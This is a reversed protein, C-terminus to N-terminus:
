SVGKYSCPKYQNNVGDWLWYTGDEAVWINQKVLKQKGDLTTTYFKIKDGTKELKGHGTIGKPQYGNDFTGYEYADPNLAGRYYSTNVEHVSDQYTIGDKTVSPKMSSNTIENENMMNYIGNLADLEAGTDTNSNEKLVNGKGVSASAKADNLNSANKKLLENQISRYIGFKTNNDQPIMLSELDYGFLGEKISSDESIEAVVDDEKDIDLTYDQIAALEDQQKRYLMEEDFQRQQEKLANETNIQDLIDMYRNYYRDDIAMNTSLQDLLLQSEYQFGQLSIQLEQQFGQYAIDALVSSNQLRAEKIANNYNQVALNYSERASAVRNQYTNYIEVQSSESYGTNNLGSAALQEANAGYRNSEKKYDVFAGSQERQYDKAAQEKEQEIQEITFDTQAQQAASQSSVWNQTNAILKDYYEGAKENISNYADNVETLSQQKQEELNAVEEEYNISM